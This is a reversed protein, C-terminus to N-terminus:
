IPEDINILTVNHGSLLGQLFDPLHTSATTSLVESLVQTNTWDVAQLSLSAFPEKQILLWVHSIKQAPTIHAPPSIDLGSPWILYDTFCM